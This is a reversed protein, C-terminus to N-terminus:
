LKRVEAHLLPHERAGIWRWCMTGVHHGATHLWNPLGPDRHAVCIRVSGDPEYRATHKNVHIPFWRYDLSEMWWNNVQFNWSQCEPIKPATVVLMEEDDLRWAGHFYFINPDGGISRCYAQDAPPLQNLTPLFSEAWNEFLAASGHVFNAAAGLARAVREPDLPPPQEQAADLRRIQLQAPQETKRDQFTQRVNLSNTSADMRLWNGPRERQSVVIQLRGDHDIEMDRADIYGTTEMTGGSAYRNAVSGIGLYDVTGRTGSILYDHAPDVPCSEYLNDPNDAGLKLTEHAPRRFQPFHPDGFEMFAELGGRLLRTLYRHGEAVTVPDRPAKPSLILNGAEELRRCFASWASGNLLDDHPNSM